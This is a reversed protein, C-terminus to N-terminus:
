AVYLRTTGGRIRNCHSHCNSRIPWVSDLPRPGASKVFDNVPAGTLADLWNTLPFRGTCAYTNQNDSIKKLDRSSATFTVSKRLRNEYEAPVTKVCRSQSKMCTLLGRGLRRNFFVALSVKEHLNTDNAHRHRSGLIKGEKTKAFNSGSKGGRAAWQVCRSLSRVFADEGAPFITARLRAFEEAYYIKVIFNATSDSFQVELHPSPKDKSTKPKAPESDTKTVEESDSPTGATEGPAGGGQSLSGSSSLFSLVGAKRSDVGPSPELTADKSEMSGSKRKILPSPLPQDSVSIRKARLDELGTRYDHCSLAYSIISSPEREYVVVPVAAGLPLTHHEQPSM